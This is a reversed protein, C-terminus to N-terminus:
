GTAKEYHKVERKNAKRLSIIRVTEGRMTYVLAHLRSGIYGLALYRIENDVDQQVELAHEFDFQAALSFDLGRLEVNRQNKMADFDIKM